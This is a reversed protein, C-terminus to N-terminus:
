GFKTFTRYCRCDDCYSNETGGEREWGCYHCHSVDTMANFPDKLSWPPKEAGTVTPFVFSSMQPLITLFAPEKCFEQVRWASFRGLWVLLKDDDRLRDFCLHFLSVLKSLNEKNLGNPRERRSRSNHGYPYSSTETKVGPAIDEISSTLYDLALIKLEEIFYVDAFIYVRAHVILQNDHGDESEWCNSHTDPSYDGKYAWELFQMITTETTDELVYHKEEEEKFGKSSAFTRAVNNLLGEHILFRTESGKASLHFPSTTIWDQNFSRPM